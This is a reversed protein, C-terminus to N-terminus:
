APALGAFFEELKDRQPDPVYDINIRRESVEWYKERKVHLLDDEISAVLARDVGQFSQRILAVAAPEGKLLFYSALIAQAKKV